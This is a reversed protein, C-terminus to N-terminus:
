FNLEDEPVTVPLRKDKDASAKAAVRKVAPGKGQPVDKGAGNKGPTKVSIHTGAVEATVTPPYMEGVNAQPRGNYDGHTINARFMKGVFRDSTVRGSQPAGVADLFGELKWRSKDGLSLFLPVTKGAESESQCALNFKWYPGAAGEGEEVDIVKFLHIGEAVPVNSVRTLDIAFAQEAM